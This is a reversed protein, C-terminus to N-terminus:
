NEGSVSRSPRRATRVMSAAEDGAEVACDEDDGVGVGVGVGSGIATGKGAGGIRQVPLAGALVGLGPRVVGGAVDTASSGRGAVLGVDVAIALGGAM